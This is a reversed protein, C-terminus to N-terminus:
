FLLYFYLTLIALMIFGSLRNIIWDNKIRYSLVLLLLTIIFMFVYDRYIVVDDTINFPTIIIAVSLVGLTNFINSGIINGIIMQHEKKIASSISVALEPLSTGLALITLGVILDSINFYRAIDSANNVIINASFLLVPLSICLILWHKYKDNNSTFTIEEKKNDAKAKIITYILFSILCVMLIIGDIKSLELDYILFGTLITFIMLFSWQKIFIKKAIVIPAIIVSVALVLAINLINSGFANGISLEPHKAYSATASVIIEPASTGFGIILVGIIFPSINFKKAISASSETFKDASWILFIFGLIIYIIALLM